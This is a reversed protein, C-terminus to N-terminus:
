VSAVQKSYEQIRRVVYDALVDLHPHTELEYNTSGPKYRGTKGLLETILNIPVSGEVISGIYRLLAKEDYSYRSTLRSNM